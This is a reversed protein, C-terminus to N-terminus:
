ERRRQWLVKFADGAGYPSLIFELAPDLRVRAADRAWSVRELVFERQTQHRVPELGLWEGWLMLDGFNVDATLDQHGFRDYVEAGQLRVGQFFARVSGEPRRHSLEPLRGGYDITLLSGKRWHPVWSELWSRYRAHVEYRQLHKRPAIDPGEMFATSELERRRSEGIPAWEEDIGQRGLDRLYLEEWRGATNNWRVVVVPFADVLENSFILAKGGSSNLAEEMTRCWRVAGGLVEKQRRQLPDSIEVIHYTLLMRETRSLCALFDRAMAGDGGGVEIVRWPHFRTLGLTERRERLAWRAVAEAVAPHLTVATSFDGRRGVTCVNSSYYGYRPHYLAETMFREFSILGGEEVFLHDLHLRLSM